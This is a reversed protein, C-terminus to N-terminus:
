TDKEIQLLSIASCSNKNFICQGARRKEGRSPWKSNTGWRDKQSLKNNLFINVLTTHKTGNKKFHHKIVYNCWDEVVSLKRHKNIMKNDIEQSGFNGYRSRWNCHPLSEMVFSVIRATPPSSKYRTDSGVKYKNKQVMLVKELTFNRPM